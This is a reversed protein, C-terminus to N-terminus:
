YLYILLKEHSLLLELIKTKDELRFISYDKIENLYYNINQPDKSMYKRRIIQRRVTEVCELFFNELDSRVVNMKLKEKMLKQFKEQLLKNQKNKQDEIKKIYNTIEAAALALNFDYKKFLEVVIGGHNSSASVQQLLNEDIQVGM